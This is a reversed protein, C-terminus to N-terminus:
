CLIEQIDPLFNNDIFALPDHLSPDIGLPLTTTFLKLIVSRYGEMGRMEEKAKRVRGKRGYVRRRGEEEEDM